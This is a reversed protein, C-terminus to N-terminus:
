CGEIHGFREAPRLDFRSGREGPQIESWLFYLQKCALQGLEESVGILHLRDIGAPNGRRCGHQDALRGIPGVLHLGREITVRREGARWIRGQGGAEVFHWSDDSSRRPKSAPSEHDSELAPVSM